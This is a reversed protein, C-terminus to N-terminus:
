LACNLKTLKRHCLRPHHPRVTFAFVGEFAHCFVEHPALADHFIIIYSFCCIKPLRRSCSRQPLRSVCDFISSRSAPGSSANIPFHSLRQLSFLPASFPLPTAHRFVRYPPGHAVPLFVDYLISHVCIFHVVRCPALFSLPYLSKLFKNGNREANLVTLFEPLHARLCARPFVVGTVVIIAQEDSLPFM